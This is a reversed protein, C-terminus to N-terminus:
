SFYVGLMYMLSQVVSVIDLNWYTAANDRYYSRVNQRREDQRKRAHCPMNKQQLWTEYFAWIPEQQGGKELIPIEQNKL